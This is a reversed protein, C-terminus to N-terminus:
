KLGWFFLSFFIALMDPTVTKIFPTQVKQTNFKKKELNTLIRRWCRICIGQSFSLEIGQSEYHANSLRMHDAM